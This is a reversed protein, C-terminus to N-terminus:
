DFTDRLLQATGVIIGIAVVAPLMSPLFPGLFVLALLAGAAPYALCFALTHLAALTRKM